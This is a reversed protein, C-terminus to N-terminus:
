EDNIEDLRPLTRKLAIFMEPPMVKNFPAFRDLTELRHNLYEGLRKDEGMIRFPKYKPKM